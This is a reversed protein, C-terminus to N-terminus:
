IDLVAPENPPLSGLVRRELDHKVHKATDIPLRGSGPWATLMGILGLRLRPWQKFLWSRDKLIYTNPEAQIKSPIIEWLLESAAYYDEKKGAKLWRDMLPELYKELRPAILNNVLAHSAISLLFIIPLSAPVLFYVAINIGAILGAPALNLRSVRNGQSDKIGHVIWFIPQSALYAFDLGPLSFTSGFFYLATVAAGGAIFSLGNELWCAIARDYFRELTERKPPSRGALVKSLGKEMLNVMPERLWTWIGDVGQGTKSGAEKGSIKDIKKENKGYKLFRRKKNGTFTRLPQLFDAKEIKEKYEELEKKGSEDAKDLVAGLNELTEQRLKELRTKIMGTLESIRYNEGLMEWNGNINLLYLYLRQLLEVFELSDAANIQAKLRSLAERIKITKIADKSEVAAEFEKVAKAYNISDIEIGAQSAMMDSIDQKIQELATKKENLGKDDKGSKLSTKVEEIREDIKEILEEPAFDLLRGIDGRSLKLGGTDYGTLKKEIEKPLASKFLRDIYEANGLFESEVPLLDEDALVAMKVDPDLSEIKGRIIKKAPDDAKKYIKKLFEKVEINYKEEDLNKIIADIISKFEKTDRGDIEKALYELIQPRIIDMYNNFVRNNGAPSNAQLLKKISDQKDTKFSKAILNLEDFIYSLNAIDIKKAKDSIIKKEDDKEALRMLIMLISGSEPVENLIKNFLKSRKVKGEEALKVLAEGAAMRVAVEDDDLLEMISNEVKEEAREAQVIDWHEVALELLAFKHLLDNPKNM